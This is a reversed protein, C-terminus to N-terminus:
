KLIQIIIFHIDTQITIQAMTYTCAYSKCRLDFAWATSCLQHIYVALQPVYGIYWVLPQGFYDCWKLLFEGDDVVSYAM